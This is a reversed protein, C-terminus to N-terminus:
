AATSEANAMEIFDGNRISCRASEIDLGGDRLVCRLEDPRYGRRQQGTLAIQQRHACKWHISGIRGSGRSPSFRLMARSTGTQSGSRQICHPLHTITHGCEVM